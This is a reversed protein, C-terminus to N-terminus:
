DAEQGGSGEVTLRMDVRERDRECARFNNNLCAVLLPTNGQSDTVEAKAGHQLLVACVQADDALSLSLSISLPLSLSVFVSLSLPLAYM